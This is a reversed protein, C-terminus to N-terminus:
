KLITILSNLTRFPNIIKWLLERNVSNYAKVLDVFLVNVEKQHEPLTQLSTKLTFTAYAYGKGFLTSCQEDM